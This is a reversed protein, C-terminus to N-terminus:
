GHDVVDALGGGHSGPSGAAAPETLGPDALPSGM